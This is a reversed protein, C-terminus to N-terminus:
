KQNGAIDYEFSIEEQVKVPLVLFIFLLYLLKTKM